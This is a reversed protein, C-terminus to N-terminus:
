EIWKSSRANAQTSFMAHHMSNGYDNKITYFWDLIYNQKVLKKKETDVNSHIIIFMSM